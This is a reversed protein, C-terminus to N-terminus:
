RFAAPITPAKFTAVSAQAEHRPGPAHLFFIAVTRLMTGFLPSFAAVGRQASSALAYRSNEQRRAAPFRSRM